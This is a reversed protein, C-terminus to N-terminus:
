FDSTIISYINKCEKEFHGAFLNIYFLILDVEIVKLKVKQVKGEIVHIFNGRSMRGVFHSIIDSTPIPTRFGYFNWVKNHENMQIDSNKIKYTTAKIPSETAIYDMLELLNSYSETRFIESKTLISKLYVSVYVSQEASLLKFHSYPIDFAKSLLPYVFADCIPSVYEAAAIRDEVEKLRNSLVNEINNTTTESNKVVENELLHRIYNVAIAKLRGLTDNYAHTMLNDVNLGHIDETSISDDYVVSGKYVSRLFWKVSEDVVTTFFVIPNKTEECLIIISSMIFNFIEIVCTDITKAQMMKLYDWMAKDTLNYRFTKTKIVGYIKSVVEDTINSKVLINYFKKHLRNGLKQNTNSILSYVKLYGSILIIKKIEYAEFLISGQKTKTKNVFKSFDVNLSDVYNDVYYKIKEVNDVLISYCSEDFLSEDIESEGDNDTSWTQNYITQYKKLFDFLWNDFEEGYKESLKEIFNTIIEYKNTVTSRLLNLKIQKEENDNSTMIYTKPGELKFKIM